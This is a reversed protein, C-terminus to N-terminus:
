FKVQFDAQLRNYDSGTDSEKVGKTDVFYMVDFSTGKALGYSFALELGKGNAGGGWPDSYTFLGLVADAEVKRYNASLKMSGKDKGYNLTGGFLYATNLSDAGSNNVYDGTLRLSVKDNVKVDIVALAEILKFDTAYGFVDVTDKGLTTNGAKVSVVKTGTKMSSNGYFSEPTYIGPQGKTRHYGYYSAGAMMSVTASPKANFGAQGGSMWQENDPNNDTLYFGAANMFIEAKKGAASKYKLAVGEPTIDNDWVLQTKDATEFPLRMKGAMMNLGPAQKPHFDVYALDLMITKRSFGGTLTQNTSVPDDSGSALGITASWAENIEADAAIRARVRWRFNDKKDQQQILENRFRVDGKLKLKEYWEAANAVAPAFLCALVVFLAIRRM